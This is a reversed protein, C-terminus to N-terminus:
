FRRPVMYDPLMRALEAMLTSREPPADPDAPVVYGALSVEGHEDTRAVVAADAVGSLQRLAYAVEGPEVRNGRIKVQDDTRGLFELEGEHNWRVLDGTRYLRRRGLGPLTLELYREATLEPRHLYGPGVGVGGLYLEGPVGIGVERGNGDLVFLDTGPLPRGIPPPGDGGSTVTAHSALVAAEAPGYANVVRFPMGAPPRRRVASGGTVVVRTPVTRAAPED